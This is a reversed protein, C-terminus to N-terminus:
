ATPAAIMPKASTSISPRSGRASSAMHAARDCPPHCPASLKQVAKARRVIVRSSQLQVADERAMSAPKGLYSLQYLM